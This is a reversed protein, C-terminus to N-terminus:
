HSETPASAPLWISAVLGPGPHVPDLVLRGGMLQAYRAVISLGLGAGQGLYVGAEGQAWRQRLRAALAGDVGPGNDAVSLVAHEGRVQLAVTIRPPHGRGYRLANDLLNNLIGELLAANGRVEVAHELGEAGLDLGMADARPLFRLLVDRVLTHLPMTQLALATGGEAARALALLQDM